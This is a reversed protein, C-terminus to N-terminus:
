PPPETPPPPPSVADETAQVAATWASQVAADLEEWTPLTAGSITSVGHVTARMGEYVNRAHEQITM